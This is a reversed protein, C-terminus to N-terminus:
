RLVSDPPQLGVVLFSIRKGSFHELIGRSKKFFHELVSVFVNSFHELIIWIKKVVFSFSTIPLPLSQREMELLLIKENKLSSFSKCFRASRPINEAFSIYCDFGFLRPLLDAHRAFLFSRM